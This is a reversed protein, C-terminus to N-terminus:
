KSFDNVTLIAANNILVNLGKEGTTKEVFKVAEAIDNDNEVDFKVVHVSKHDKALDNLDQFTRYLYKNYFLFVFRPKAQPEVDLLFMNSEM